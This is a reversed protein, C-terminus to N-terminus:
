VLKCRPMAQRVTRRRRAYKYRSRKEGNLLPRFVQGPATKVTM